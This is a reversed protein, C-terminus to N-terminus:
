FAVKDRNEAVVTEIFEEVGVTSKEEVGRKNVNVTGDREEADGVVLVYPVKELKAQSITM